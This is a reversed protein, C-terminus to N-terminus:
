KLTFELHIVTQFTFLSVMLNYFFVHILQRGTPFTNKHSPFFINCFNNFSFNSFNSKMLNFVRIYLHEAKGVVLCSLCHSVTEM